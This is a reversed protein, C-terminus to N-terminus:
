KDGIQKNNSAMSEFIDDHRTNISREFDDHPIHYMTYSVMLRTKCGNKIMRGFLDVDESGWGHFSEDVVLQMSNM